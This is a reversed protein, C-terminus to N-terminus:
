KRNYFGLLVGDKSLTRWQTLMGIKEPLPNDASHEIVAIGGPAILRGRSVLDLLEADDPGGTRSLFVVDWTRKRGANRKIFPVAEIEAVEAHGDKIGMMEVNKRLVSAARASREVFTSLMSGRSIAELGIMGCGACLDLFRAGRVRRAIIRFMSDRIPHPMTAARPSVSNGLLKGAFKGDTVQLDSTIVVAPVPKLVKAAARDAPKSGFRGRPNAPGSGFRRSGDGAPRSSGGGPRGRPPGGQRTDSFPANGINGDGINRSGSPRPSDGSRSRDHSRDPGSSNSRPPRRNDM